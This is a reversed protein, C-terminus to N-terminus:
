KGTNNASRSITPHNNRRSFFRRHPAGRPPPIGGRNTCLVYHLIGSKGYLREEGENRMRGEGEEDGRARADRDEGASNMEWYQEGITINNPPQKEQFLVARLTGGVSFSETREYLVRLVFDWEEGADM